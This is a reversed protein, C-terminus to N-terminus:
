KERDSHICTCGHANQILYNTPRNTSTYTHTHQTHTHTHTHTNHTNSDDKGESNYSNLLMEQPLGGCEANETLLAHPLHEVPNIYGQM